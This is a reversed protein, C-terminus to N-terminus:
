MNVDWLKIYNDLVEEFWTRKVPDKFATALTKLDIQLLAENKLLDNLTRLLSPDTHLKLLSPYTFIYYSIRLMSNAWREVTRNGSAVRIQGMHQAIWPSFYNILESKAINEVGRSKLREKISAYVSRKYVFVQYLSNGTIYSTIYHSGYKRIFQLVASVNGVDIGEIEEAVADVLRVDDPLNDLRVTDRFRSLRVLVYCHDGQVFSSNIGMHRAVVEPLWSGTFARWPRELREFTFDRFYAQLLQRLNDCFEMHFDGDLVPTRGKIVTRLPQPTIRHNIGNFVEVTPERFLWSRDSDNRPVVRMSISLYGFRSFLNIGRGARLQDTEPASASSSTATSEAALTRGVSLALALLLARGWMSAAFPVKSPLQWGHIPYTDQISSM